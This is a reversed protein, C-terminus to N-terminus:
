NKLQEKKAENEDIFYGIIGGVFAFVVVSVIVNGIFDSNDVIQDFNQLYNGIGGIWGKLMESQFYYSLPIGLIAGIIAFIGKKNIKNVLLAILFYALFVIKSFFFSQTVMYLDIGFMVFLISPVIPFIIVIVFVMRFVLPSVGTKLALKSCVGFMVRGQRNFINNSM